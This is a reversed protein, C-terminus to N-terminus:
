DHVIDHDAPPPCFVIFDCFCQLMVYSPYQIFEESSELDENADKNRLRQAASLQKKQVKPKPKPPSVISSYSQMSFYHVFMPTLMECVCVCVCM